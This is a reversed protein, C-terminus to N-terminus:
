PSVKDFQDLYGNNILEHFIPSIFVVLRQWVQQKLSHYQRYCKCASKALGNWAPQCLIKFLVSSLLWNMLFKSLLCETFHSEALSLCPSELQISRRSLFVSILINVKSHIDGFGQLLWFTKTHHTYWNDTATYCVVQCTHSSVVVMNNYVIRLNAPGKRAPRAQAWEHPQMWHTNPQPSSLSHHCTEKQRPEKM